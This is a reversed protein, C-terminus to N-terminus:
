ETEGGVLLRLDLRQKNVALLLNLGQHLVLGHGLFIAAGLCPGDGLARVDADLGKQGFILLLLECGHLLTHAVIAGTTTAGTARRRGCRLRLELRLGSGYGRRRPTIWMGASLKGMRM